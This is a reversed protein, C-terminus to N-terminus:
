RRKRDWHAFGAARAAEETEFWVEAKAAEYSPSEPTHFLMSGANGKISWGTPGSGDEAPEASGPGFPAQGYSGAAAGAQAEDYGYDGADAPAGGPAGEGVPAAAPYGADAPAETYGGQTPAETYGGQTPAETTYGADAPAETYGGQAPAETYGGQAPAETTYGGEVPAEPAYGQDIAEAYEPDPAHEVYGGETAAASDQAVEDDQSAWAAAGAGAAVGGAGAAMTGGSVGSNDGPVEGATADGAPTQTQDYASDAPPPADAVTDTHETEGTATDTYAADQGYDSADPAPETDTYAYGTAPDTSTDSQPVPDTPATGYAGGAPAQDYTSDAPPADGPVTDPPTAAGTATDTYAAEQPYGSAEGAPQTQTDDYDSLRDEVPAADATQDYPAAGPQQDYTPTAASQGYPDGMPAEAADAGAVGAGAAGAAGTGDDYGGAHSQPTPGTHTNDHLAPDNNGSVENAGGPRRLLLWVAAAIVLLLLVLWVWKWDM